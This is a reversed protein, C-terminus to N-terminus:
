SQGNQTPLTNVRLANDAEAMARLRQIYLDVTEKRKLTELVDRTTAQIADTFADEDPRSRDVLRFILWERGIKVPAEPFTAEGELAFM